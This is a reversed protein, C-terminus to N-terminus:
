CPHDCLKTGYDWLIMDIIRPTWTDTHFLANLEAAKKRMMDVLWLVDKDSLVLIENGQPLAQIEHLARVMMKDVGGFLEPFLVALLCSAGAQALGNVGQAIELAKARESYKRLDRDFLQKKISLLYRRGGPNDHKKLSQLKQPLYNGKFKWPFFVDQLFEYWENEDFARVTDSNLNTIRDELERNMRVRKNKDYKQLAILWDSQNWSSWLANITELAM